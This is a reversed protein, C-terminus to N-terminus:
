LAIGPWSKEFKKWSKEILYRLNHVWYGPNTKGIAINKQSPNKHGDFNDVQKTEVDGIGRQWGAISWGIIPLCLRKAKWCDDHLAAAAAAAAVAAAAAPNCSQCGRLLKWVRERSLKTASPEALQRPGAPHTQCPFLSPKSPHPRSISVTVELGQKPIWEGRLKSKVRLTAHVWSRSRHLHPPMTALVVVRTYTVSERCPKLLSTIFHLEQTEVYGTLREM